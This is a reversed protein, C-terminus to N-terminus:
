TYTGGAHGASGAGTARSVSERLPAHLEAHGTILRDGDFVAISVEEPRTGSRDRAIMVLPEEAAALKSAIYAFQEIRDSRLRRADPRANAQARGADLGLWKLARGVPAGFTGRVTSIAGSRTKM